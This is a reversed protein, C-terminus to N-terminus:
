RHEDGADHDTVVADEPAEVAVAITAAYAAAAREAAARAADAAYAAEAAAYAADAAADAAAEAAAKADASFDEGADLRVYRAREGTMKAPLDHDSVVLLVPLGYALCDTAQVDILKPLTDSM